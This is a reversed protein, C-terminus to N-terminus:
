CRSDGLFLAMHDHQQFTLDALAALSDYIGKALSEDLSQQQLKLHSIVKGASAGKNRGQGIEM